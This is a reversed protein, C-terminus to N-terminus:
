FYSDSTQGSSNSANEIERWQPRPIQTSALASSQSRSTRGEFRMPNMALAFARFSSRIDSRHVPFYSEGNKNLQRYYM